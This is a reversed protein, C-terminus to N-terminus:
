RAQLDNSFPVNTCHYELKASAVPLLCNQKVYALISSTHEAKDMKENGLFDLVHAASERPKEVHPLHGCQRVQRLTANPLEQQLRQPAVCCMVIIAHMYRGRSVVYSM